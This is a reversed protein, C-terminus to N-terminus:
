QKHMRTIMYWASLSYKYEPHQVTKQPNFLSNFHQKCESSSLFHQSSCEPKIFMTSPTAFANCAHSTFCTLHRVCPSYTAGPLSVPAAHFPEPGPWLSEHLSLPPSLDSSGCKRTRATPISTCIHTLRPQGRAETSSLDSPWPWARTTPAPCPQAQGSAGGALLQTPPPRLALVGPLPQKMTWPFSLGQGSTM